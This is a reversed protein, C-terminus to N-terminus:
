LMGDFVQFRLTARFDWLRGAFLEAENEQRWDM